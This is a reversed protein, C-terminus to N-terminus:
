LIIPLGDHNWNPFAIAESSVHHLQRQVFPHKMKWSMNCFFFWALRLIGWALGKEICHVCMKIVIIWVEVSLGNKRKMQDKLCILTERSVKQTITAFENKLRALFLTEFLHLCYHHILCKWCRCTYLSFNAIIHTQSSANRIELQESNETTSFPLFFSIATWTKSTYAFRTLERVIDRIEDNKVNITDSKGERWFTMTAEKVGGFRAIRKVKRNFLERWVM